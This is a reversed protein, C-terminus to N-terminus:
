HTRYRFRTAIRGGYLRPSARHNLSTRGTATGKPRRHRMAEGHGMEEGREVFWVPGNLTPEESGEGLLGILFQDELPPPLV